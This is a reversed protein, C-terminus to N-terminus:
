NPDDHDVWPVKHPRKKGSAPRYSGIHEPGYGSKRNPKKEEARTEEVDVIVINADSLVVPTPVIIGGRRADFGALDRTTPLMPPIQYFPSSPLSLGGSASLLRSPEADNPWITNRCHHFGRHGEELECDGYQSSHACITM